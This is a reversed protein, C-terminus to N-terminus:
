EEQVSMKVVVVKHAEVSFLSMVANSIQTVTQMNGGGEAVVVVGEVKPKRRQTVYPKQENDTDYVVTTEEKQTGDETINKDLTDEGDDSFTLMVRVNGVGDMKELLDQLQEELQKKEDTKNQLVQTQTEQQRDTKKTGSPMAVIMVMVGLLILIVFDTKNRKKLFKELFSNM